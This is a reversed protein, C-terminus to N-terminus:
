PMSCKPSSITFELRGESNMVKVHGSALFTRGDSVGAVADVRGIDPGISRFPCDPSSCGLPAWCCFAHDHIVIDCNEKEFPTFLTLPPGYGKCVRSRSEPNMFVEHKMSIHM